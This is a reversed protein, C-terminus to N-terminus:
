NFTPQAGGGGEFNDSTITPAPTQTPPIFQEAALPRATGSFANPANDPAVGATQMFDSAAPAYGLPNGGQSQDGNQFGKASPGDGYTPVPKNASPGSAGPSYPQANNQYTPVGGGSNYPVGGPPISGGPAYSGGPVTTQIPGPYGNGIPYGQSSYGGGYPQNYMPRYCGQSALALMGVTAILRLEM